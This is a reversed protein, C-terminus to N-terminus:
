MRCFWETREEGLRGSIQVVTASTAFAVMSGGRRALLIHLVDGRARRGFALRSPPPSTGNGLAPLDLSWDVAEM